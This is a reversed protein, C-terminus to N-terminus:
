YNSKGKVQIQINSGNIQMLMSNVVPFVPCDPGGFYGMDSVSGDPDTLSPNGTNWCPSSSTIHFDLNATSTFLPDVDIVGQNGACYYQPGDSYSLSIKGSYYGDFGNDSNSRSICNTVSLWGPNDANIGIGNNNRVVCNIITGSGSNCFIGGGTCSIIVNNTVTGGSINIGNGYLSTIRFWQIKGNSMSVSPSFPGTIITNEYGSGMLVINKNLTVQESYTGPLVKVTDGANAINIAAQITRYSGNGNVGVVITTAFVLQTVSVLCVFLFLTKM